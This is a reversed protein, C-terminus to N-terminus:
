GRFWEPRGTMSDHRSIVTSGTNVFINRHSRIVAQSYGTIESDLMELRSPKYKEQVWKEISLEQVDQLLQMQEAM